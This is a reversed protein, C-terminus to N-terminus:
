GGLHSGQASDRRRDPNPSMLNASLVDEGLNQGRHYLDTDYGISVSGTFKVDVVPDPQPKIGLGVETTDDTAGDKAQYGWHAQTPDAKALEQTPVAEAKTAKDSDVPSNSDGFNYGLNFNFRGSSDKSEDTEVPIGYDLKIPGIPLHMRVGTEEVVTEGHQSGIAPLTEASEGRNRALRDVSARGLSNLSYKRVPAAMSMMWTKSPLRMTVAMDSRLLVTSRFRDTSLELRLTM